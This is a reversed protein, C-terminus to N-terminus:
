GLIQGGLERGPHRLRSHKLVNVCLVRGQEVLQVGAEDGRLGAFAPLIPSRIEPTEKDLRQCADIRNKERSSSNAAAVFCDDPHDLGAMMDCRVDVFDY